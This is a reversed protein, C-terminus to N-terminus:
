CYTDTTRRQQKLAVTEIKVVFTGTISNVALKRVFNQFPWLAGEEQIGNDDGAVNFAQLFGIM